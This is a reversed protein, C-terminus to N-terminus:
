ACVHLEPCQGLASVPSSVCADDSTDMSLAIAAALADAEEREVEALEALVHAQAAEARQHDTRSNDEPVAVEAAPVAQVDSTTEESLDAPQDINHVANRAMLVAERAAIAEEPTGAVKFRAYAKELLVPPSDPEAAVHTTRDCYSLLDLIRPDSMDVGPLSSLTQHLFDHENMAAM